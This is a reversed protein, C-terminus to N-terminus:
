GNGRQGRSDEQCGVLCHRGHDHKLVHLRDASSGLHACISLRQRHNSARPLSKPVNFTSYIANRTRRPGTKTARGKVILEAIYHQSCLSGERSFNRNRYCQLGLYNTKHEALETITQSLYAYSNVGVPISFHGVNLRLRVLAEFLMAPNENLRESVASFRPGRGAAALDGTDRM